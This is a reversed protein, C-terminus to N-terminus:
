SHNLFYSAPRREVRSIATRRHLMRSLTLKISECNSSAVPLRDLFMTQEGSSNREVLQTILWRRDPSSSHARKRFNSSILRRYLAARVALCCSTDVRVFCTSIGILLQKVSETTFSTCERVM